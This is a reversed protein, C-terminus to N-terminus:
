SEDTLRKWLRGLPGPNPAAAWEDPPIETVSHDTSTSTQHSSPPAAVPAPRDDEGVAGATVSGTGIARLAAAIQAMDPYREHPFEDTATAVVERIAEPIRSEQLQLRGTTVYYLTKGLSWIDGLVGSQLDSQSGEPPMFHPTGVAQGSLTIRSMLAQSAGDVIALGFDTLYPHDNAGLLINNPKIDRHTIGKQHAAHLADAVKALLGAARGAELPGESQVVGNLDQGDIWQMILFPGEADEDFDLVQVVHPHQLAAVTLTERRFRKLFQEDNALEPLIRKLAVFRNLQDLNEQEVMQQFRQDMAKWVSGMGGAGIPEVITYRESVPVPVAIPTESTREGAVFQRTPQDGGGRSVFRDESM